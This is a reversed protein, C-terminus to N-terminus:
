GKMIGIQSGFGQSSAEVLHETSEIADCEMIETPHPRWTIVRHAVEQDNAFDKGAVGVICPVPDM